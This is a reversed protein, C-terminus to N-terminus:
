AAPVRPAPFHALEAGPTGHEDVRCSACLEGKKGSLIGTRLERYAPGAWLQGLTHTRLSGFSVGLNGATCCPRITGDSEVRLYFWPKYCYRPAVSTREAAGAALGQTLLSAQVQARRALEPDFFMQRAVAPYIRLGRKFAKRLALACLRDSLAKDHILSEEPPTPPYAVVHTIVLDSIGLEACLDVFDGLEEINSRMMVFSGQILVKPNGARTRIEHIRRINGLVQEFPERSGSGRTPRLLNYTAPTAADLSIRLRLSARAALEAVAPSRELLLGNTIVSLALSRSLANQALYEFNEALLTEGWAVAEIVCRSADVESLVKDIILRSMERKPPNKLSLPCMVCAQNCVNDMLILDIWLPLTGPAPGNFASAEEPGPLSGYFNPPSSRSM